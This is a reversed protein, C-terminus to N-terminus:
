WVIQTTSIPHIWEVLCCDRRLKIAWITFLEGLEYDFLNGLEADLNSDPVQARADTLERLCDSVLGLYLYVRGKLLRFECRRIWSEPESWLHYHPEAEDLCALAGRYDLLAYHVRGLYYQIQISYFGETDKDIGNLAVRLDAMAEHREGLWYHCVGLWMAIEPAYTVEAYESRLRQFVDLALKYREQEFHSAGESYLRKAKQKLKAKTLNSGSHSSKM